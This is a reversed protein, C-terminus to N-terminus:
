TWDWCLLYRVTGGRGKRLPGREVRIPRAPLSRWLNHVLQQLRGHWMTWYVSVYCWVGLMGWDVHIGNMGLMWWSIHCGFMGLMWWGIHCGYMGLMWWGVHRGHMGLMGWCIHFLIWPQRAVTRRSLNHGQWWPHHLLHQWRALFSEVIWPPKVPCYDSWTNSLHFGDRRLPLSKLLTPDAAVWDAELTEKIRFFLFENKFEFLRTSLFWQIENISVRVLHLIEYMKSRNFVFFLIWLLSCSWSTKVSVFECKFYASWM